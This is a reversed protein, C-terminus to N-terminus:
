LAQKMLGHETCYYYLEGGRIQPLRLEGGQEPYLKVFYVRDYRLYAFFSIYHQKEMPHNFTIYYDEEVEQASIKHEEDATKAVLEALRRGCCSIDAEGTATLVNGCAPCVYLKTKKM